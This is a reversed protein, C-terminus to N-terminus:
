RALAFQTLATRDLARWLGADKEQGPMLWLGECEILTLAPLKLLSALSTSSVRGTDRDVDSAWDREFARVKLKGNNFSEFQPRNGPSYPFTRLTREQVDLLLLEWRSEPNMHLRTLALYRADPSWIMSPALDKIACGSATLLHGGLRCVSRRMWSDAYETECGFLWAADSNGPAPQVFDGDANAAQPIQVTRWQPLARLADNGIELEVIQYYPRAGERYDCFDAAQGVPPAPQDYRQLATSECADTLRGAVTIVSLKGERVDMLHVVEMPPGELRRRKLLDIVVVKGPSAPYETFPILALYRQCDSVRHELLWLGPLEWDAIRCRYGGLDVANDMQWSLRARQGELLPETEISSMGREGKGTLPVVLRVGTLNRKGGLLQGQSDHGTQIETDSHICRLNYGYRGRDPCEFALYGEIRLDHEDLALPAHWNLSIERNSTVWPEALAQWGTRPQWCWYKKEEEDARQAMVCLAKGDERWIISDDAYFFLDSERGDLSLQYAPYRLADLPQELDRLSAPMRLHGEIRHRDHPGNREIREAAADQPRASPEIWIDVIPMMDVVRASKLVDQLKITSARNDVLPSIRGSLDTESFADLEWFVDNNSHYVRRMHRDLIVLGWAQRSPVTAAFYRGDISFRASAGIGQLLVGDPFLYDMYVPGGMAIEGMNFVRIPEGEPTREPEQGGWASNSTEYSRQRPSPPTNDGEKKGESPEAIGLKSEWRQLLNLGVIITFLAVLVNWYNPLVRGLSLGLGIMASVSLSTLPSTIGKWGAWVCLGTTAALGLVILLGQWPPLMTLLAAPGILLFLQWALGLLLVSLSKDDEPPSSSPPSTSM